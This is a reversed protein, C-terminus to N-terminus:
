NFDARNSESEEEMRRNLQWDSIIDSTYSKSLSKDTGCYLMDYSEMPSRLLVDESINDLAANMILESIPPQSTLDKNQSKLKKPLGAIEDLAIRYRKGNPEGAFLPTIAKIIFRRIKLPDWLQEEYDAHKGYEKLIELRTKPLSTTASTSSGYLLEDAMAFSWPNAALARGIMVGKMGECLSLQEQADAISNLGGNLSFTLEPYDEVLKRVMHYKLKPVKRNDAPSFNKDLVAIRAHIQFDTVVGSSAVTEIFQCLKSYEHEESVSEYNTKTFSFGSDTGIRCKVTIPIDGNAGQHMATVLRKVLSADDMLAAGFCGKGAVKPSPCGCNLNIATYDCYSRKTLELVTQCATYLQDPDSGGLQLVSPGEGASAQGLFRRLYTMDYGFENLDEEVEKALIGTREDTLHSGRSIAEEREHAIANAAVMETYLLINSSILRLMHRFHRDTYEMMPALSLTSADVLQKSKTKYTESSSPLKKTAYQPTTKRPTSVIRLSFTSHSSRTYMLYSSSFASVSFQHKSTLLFGIFSMISGRLLQNRPPRENM